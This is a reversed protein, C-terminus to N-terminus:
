VGFASLVRGLPMPIYVLDGFNLHAETPTQNYWAILWWHKPNKYHMSALKHFRDGDSWVHQVTTFSAVQRASPRSLIPTDYHRILSVKRKDFFEKYHEDENRFVTRNDYRSTM